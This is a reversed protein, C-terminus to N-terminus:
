QRPERDDGQNVLQGSQNLRVPEFRRYSLNSLIRVTDHEGCVDHPVAKNGENIHRQVAADYLGLSQECWVLEEPAAVHGPTLETLVETQRFVCADHQGDARGIM